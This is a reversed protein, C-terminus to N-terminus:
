LALSDLRFEKRIGADMIGVPAFRRLWRLRSAGKGATYRLKPQSATAAQLVVDAVV